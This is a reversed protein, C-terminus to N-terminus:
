IFKLFYYQQQISFAYLRCSWSMLIFKFACRSTLCRLSSTARLCTMAGRSDLLEEALLFLLLHIFRRAEIAASHTSNTLKFMATTCCLVTHRSEALHYQHWINRLSFFGAVYFMNWHFSERTRERFCLSSKSSNTLSFAANQHLFFVAM